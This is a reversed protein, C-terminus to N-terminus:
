LYLPPMNTTKGMFMQDGFLLCGYFDWLFGFSSLLATPCERALVPFFKEGNVLLSIM